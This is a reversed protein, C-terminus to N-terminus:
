IFLIEPLYVLVFSDWALFALCQFVVQFSSRSHDQEVSQLRTIDLVFISNQNAQGLYWVIQSFGLLGWFTEQCRLHDSVWIQASFLQSNKQTVQLMFRWVIYLAIYSCTSGWWVQMNVAITVMRVVFPDLVIYAGCLIQKPNLRGLIESDNQFILGIEM